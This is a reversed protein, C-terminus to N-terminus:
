TPGPVLCLGILGGGIGIVWFGNPWGLVFVIGALSLLVFFAARFRLPLWAHVLFGAAALCLVPFFHKQAEIDFQYVVALILVLELGILLFSRLRGSLSPPAAPMPYSRM